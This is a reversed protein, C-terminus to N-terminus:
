AGGRRVGLRRRPERLLRRACGVSRASLRRERRGQQAASYPAAQRSSRWFAAPSPVMPRDGRFACSSAAKFRRHQVRQRGDRGRAALGRRNTTVPRDASHGLGGARSPDRIGRPASRAALVGRAVAARQGTTRSRRRDDRARRGGVSGRRARPPRCRGDRGPRDKCSASTWRQPWRARLRGAPPTHIM